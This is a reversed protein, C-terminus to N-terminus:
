EEPKLPVINDPQESETNATTQTLDAGAASMGMNSMFQQMTKQFEGSNIAKATEDSEKVMRDVASILENMKAINTQITEERKHAILKQAADVLASLQGKDIASLVM